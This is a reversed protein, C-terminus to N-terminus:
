PKAAYFDMGKKGPVGEHVLESKLRGSFLGGLFETLAMEYREVKRSAPRVVLVPWDDILDGRVEWGIWSNNGSGGCPLFGGPEWYLPVPLAKPRRERILRLEGLASAVKIQFSADGIGSWVDLYGYWKHTRSQFAGDGYVKKFQVFDEPLRTGLRNVLELWAPDDWAVSRPQAPPPAVACLEDLFKM